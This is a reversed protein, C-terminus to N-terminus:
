GSKYQSYQQRNSPHFSELEDAGFVDRIGPLQTDWSSVSGHSTDLSYGTQFSPDLTDTDSQSITTDQRVSEDETFEQTAVLNESLSIESGMSSVYVPKIREDDSAATDYVIHACWYHGRTRRTPTENSGPISKENPMFHKIHANAQSEFYTSRNNPADVDGDEKARNRLAQTLLKQRNSPMGGRDRKIELAVSKVRDLVEPSM